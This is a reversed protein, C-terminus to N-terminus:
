LMAALYRKIETKIHVKADVDLSDLWKIKPMARLWILQRRALHRTAIVSLEVAEELSRSGAFHEWLQRYGVSRMSPLEPSLDGRQYLQRVEEVLGDEIMQNFRREIRDYLAIRDAPSWALSLFNENLTQRVERQLTSLPVGTLQYVELARQIRQGDNPLIKQAAIADVRSLEAHMAPWGVQVARASLAARVEPNAEPLDAIGETLAKFYLMTGGVFLPVKGHSRIEAGIRQADRVFQGASYRETPDLIDILHHPVRELLERAPKGTGIDLGRYVLASDVSVIEVPFEAALEIALDTKGAATPGMLAISAPLSAACNM